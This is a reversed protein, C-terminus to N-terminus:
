YDRRARRAGPASPSGRSERPDYSGPPHRQDSPSRRRRYRPAQTEMPVEPPKSWRGVSRRYPAYWDPVPILPLGMAECFHPLDEPVKLLATKGRHTASLCFPYKWKYRTDQARLADLLPRLDRRHQLTIGSLDQYLQIPTGEHLLRQSRARQLIDEKLSFDVLCCVVDRPPDTDKGKPRLARHIREMPIPTQPPRGLIGNFIDTM